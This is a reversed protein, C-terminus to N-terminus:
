RKLDPAGVAPLPARKRATGQISKNPQQENSYM